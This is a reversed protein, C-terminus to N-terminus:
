NRVKKKKLDEEVQDLWRLRTKGVPRSSCPEWETLKTVTRTTDIRIIHAAWRLRQSKIFRVTNENKILTELEENAKIRWTGGNNKTPGYIKRLVRGEFVLLRNQETISMTWTEHGYTVTPRIISKYIQLKIASNLDKNKLLKRNAFMSRNGAQIRLRIEDKILNKSNIRSGLYLFQDAAEYMNGAVELDQKTISIKRTLQMYKTKNTNIILGAREAEEQLKIFMEKLSKQSRAIIIIADAYACLQKTRTSINGRLDIKLLATELVLNFLVTSLADGQRLGSNINFVETRGQCVEVVTRSNELTIKVLRILKTPIKLLKHSEYMKPRNVKDSVQKFDIFINHLEIGFEYCKEM